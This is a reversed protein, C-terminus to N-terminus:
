TLESEALRIFSRLLPAFTIKGNTALIQPCTIQKSLGGPCIIPSTGVLGEASPWRLRTKLLMNHCLVLVSSPRPTSGEALRKSSFGSVRIEGCRLEHVLFTSMVSV